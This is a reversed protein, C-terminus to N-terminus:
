KSRTEVQKLFELASKADIKINEQIQQLTPIQNKIDDPLSTKLNEIETEHLNIRDENMFDFVSLFPPNSIKYGLGKIYSHRKYLEQYLKKAKAFSNSVFQDYDRRAHYYELMTADQTPPFISEKLSLASESKDLNLSKKNVIQQKITQM